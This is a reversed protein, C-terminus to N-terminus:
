VPQTRAASTPPPRLNRVSPTILVAACSAAAWGAALLLTTRIGVIAALPGALIYGLPVFAVSGFWDYASVRSLVDSPVHQQLATEWLAAFISLGIGAVGAGIAILPTSAPIAILAVPVAFVAAGLTAVVLPRQPNIRTATLGGLISGAGFV